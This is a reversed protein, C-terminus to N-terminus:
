LGAFYFIITAALVVPFAAVTIPHEDFNAVRSVPISLRRAIIASYKLMLTSIYFLYITVTLALSTFFFTYLPLSGGYEKTLAIRQPFIGLDDSLVGVLNECGDPQISSDSCWVSVYNAASANLANRNGSNRLLYIPQFGPSLTAVLFFNDQVDDTVLYASSYWYLFAIPENWWYEISGVMEYDVPVWSASEEAPAEGNESKLTVNDDPFLTKLAQEVGRRLQPDTLNDSSVFYVTATSLANEANREYLNITYQKSFDGEIQQQKLAGSVADTIDGEEVSVIFEAVERGNIIYLIGFALFAAYAFTFINISALLDTFFVVFVSGKSQRRNILRILVLTQTFSLYDVFFNSAIMFLLFLLFPPFHDGSLGETVEHFDYGLLFFQIYLVVAFAYFSFAISVLFSRPSFPKIQEIFGVPNRFNPNNPHELANRINDGIRKRAEKSTLRDAVVALGCLMAFFGVAEYMNGVHIM